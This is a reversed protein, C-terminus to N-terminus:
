LNCYSSLCKLYGEKLALATPGFFSSSTTRTEIALVAIVLALLPGYASVGGSAINAGTKPSTRFFAFLISGFNTSSIHM